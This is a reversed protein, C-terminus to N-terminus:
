LKSLIRKRTAEDPFHQCFEEWTRKWRKHSWLWYQPHENISKELLRYYQETLSFIETDRAHDCMKVMTAVYYGRKPRKIDVYYVANNFIRAIREPGTYTPTKQHLFTPWYHMDDFGPVQDSIYGVAYPKGSKDLERIALLTRDMRVSHSGFKERIKMFFRDAAKSELEHYIQNCHVEPMQIGLSSVWEWNCYHGLYLCISTGQRAKERVDDLNEFRMRRRIESESMSTLKLTEFIYDCFWQYFGKAIEHREHDSKDPFSNRLNTEVVEKRYGVIHYLILYCLDSFLFLIRMPLLSFAYALAYIIYYKLNETM